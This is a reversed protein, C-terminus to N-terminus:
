IYDHKVEAKKVDYCNTLIEYNRESLYNVQTYLPM